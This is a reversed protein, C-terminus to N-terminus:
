MKQGPRIGGANKRGIILTARWERSVPAPTDKIFRALKKIGMDFEEPTLLRYTSVFKAEAKKLYSRNIVFKELFVEHSEMRCFGARELFSAIADIDPFRKKELQVFGPFFEQLVPHYKEIQEHSSTLIMIAGHRLLRFCESFLFPLDSIYHIVYAGLIADFSRDRFPLSLGDITACVPRISKRAAHGLMPLSLDVGTVDAGAHDRVASGLNGTGCGIELVEAARRIGGQECL